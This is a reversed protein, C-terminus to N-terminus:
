KSKKKARKKSLLLVQLAAEMKTERGGPTYMRSAYHAKAAKGPPKGNHKEVRTKQRHRVSCWYLCFSNWLLALICCGTHLKACNLVWRAGGLIWQLLKSALPSRHAREAGGGGKRSGPCVTQFGTVGDRIGLNYLNSPTHLTQKAGNSRAHILQM